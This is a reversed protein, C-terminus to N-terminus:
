DYRSRIFHNQMFNELHRIRFLLIKGPKYYPIRRAQVWKRLTSVPVDLYEAAEGIRIYPRELEVTNTQM